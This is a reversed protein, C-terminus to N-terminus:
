HTWVWLTTGRADFNVVNITGMSPGNYHVPLLASADFSTSVPGGTVDVQTVPRGDWVPRDISVGRAAMAAEFGAKDLQTVHLDKPSLLKLLPGAFPLAGLAGGAQPASARGSASALETDSLPTLEARVPTATLAAASLALLAFARLAWDPLSRPTTRHRM